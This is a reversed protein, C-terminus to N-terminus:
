DEELHVLHKSNFNSLDFDAPFAAEKLDSEGDLFSRWRMMVETLRALKMQDDTRETREVDEQVEKILQSFVALVPGRIEEHKRRIAAAAIENKGAFNYAFVLLAEAMEAKDPSYRQSSLLEKAVAFLGLGVTSLVVVPRWYKLPDETAILAEIVPFIVPLRDSSGKKMTTLLVSLVQCSREEDDWSIHQCLNINSEISYAQKILSSLVDVRLLLEEGALDRTVLEGYRSTAPMRFGKEGAELAATELRETARTHTAVAMATVVEFFEHLHLL